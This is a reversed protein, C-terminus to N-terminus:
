VYFNMNKYVYNKDFDLIKLNRLNRYPELYSKPAFGWTLLGYNTYPQIFAYYLTRLTTQPVFDRICCLIGNGEFIKLNIFQIHEMWTLNKNILVGLYKAYNTQKIETNNIKIKISQNIKKYKPYFIVTNSKLINLTLKNAKLWESVNKSQKNYVEDTM